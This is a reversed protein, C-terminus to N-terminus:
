RSRFILRYQAPTVGTLRKFTNTFHSQDYFGYKLAIESLPIETTSIEDCALDVRLRRNYEGITSKYFKRFLRSLHIPHVGAQQAIDKIEVNESPQDHFSERIHELWRPANPEKMDAMRSIEATMELMLGEIVLGSFQDMLQFERYLRAALINLLGGIEERPDDLIRSYEHINQLWTNKINVSFIKTAKSHFTVSHREGPPHFVILSPKAFRSRRRYIETYTGDIVMSIRGQEHPHSPMRLNPEYLDEALEFNPLSHIKTAITVNPIKSEIM